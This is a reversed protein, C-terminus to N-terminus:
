RSTAYVVDNQGEGDTISLAWNTQTEDRPEWIIALGGVHGGRVLIWVHNTSISIRVPHVDSVIKPLSADTVSIDAGMINTGLSYHALMSDCAKAFDAHYSISKHKFGLYKANLVYYPVTLVAVVFLAVLGLAVLIDKVRM